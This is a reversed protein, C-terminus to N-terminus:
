ETTAEQWLGIVNGAPDRFTAVLLNGEPYPPTVIQGGRGPIQEVIAHLDDVYLYPLLGPEAAVQQNTVWAGSVHGTGDDFSPRDTDLGHVAWGFVQQYFRASAQVDVAPIHLYSFSAHRTLRSDVREDSGPQDPPPEHLWPARCVAVLLGEPSLLRATIQGWPETQAGHLLRYGNTELEAAAAAVDPVEFEISAQPVDVDSPWEDTGFCSRAAEALPWLGLHRVGPLQETYRYDGESGEFQLDLADRYFARAADVDRVIPSVSAVFEVQM